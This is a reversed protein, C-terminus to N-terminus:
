TVAGIAELAERETRVIRAYEGRWTLWFERQLENFQTDLSRVNKGPAPKVELMWNRGRWGVLLDCPTDLRHVSAGVAELARVISLENADRSPAHGRYALRRM